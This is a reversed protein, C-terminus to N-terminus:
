QNLIKFVRFLLFLAGMGGSVGVVPVPDVSGLVETIYGPFGSSGGLIGSRTRDTDRPESYVEGEPGKDKNTHIFQGEGTPDEEWLLGRPSVSRESSELRQTHQGLESNVSKRLGRQDDIHQSTGKESATGGVTNYESRQLLEEKAKLQQELQRKSAEELAQKEKEEAERRAKEEQEERQVVKPKHLFISKICPSDSKDKLNDILKKIDLFKHYIKKDDKYYNDIANNHNYAWSLFADCSGTNNSNGQSNIKSYEDYLGYLIRMKYITEHGLDFIYKKCSNNYNNARRYCLKDSFEGFIDFYSRNAHEDLKKVEENLWFNIYRCYNDGIGNIFAPDNVLVNHLKTLINSKRFKETNPVGAISNIIEHFYDNEIRNDIIRYFQRKVEPYDRYSIYGPDRQDSSM